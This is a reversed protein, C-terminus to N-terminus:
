DANGAASPGANAQEHEEDDHEEDDCADDFREAPLAGDHLPLKDEAGGRAMVREKQQVCATVMARLTMNHPARTTLQTLDALPHALFWRAEQLIRLNTLLHGPLHYVCVCMTPRVERWRKFQETAHGHARTLRCVHGLSEAVAEASSPVAAAATAAKSTASV